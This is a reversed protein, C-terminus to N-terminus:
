KFAEALENAWAEIKDWNRFDGEEFKALKMRIYEMPYLESYWFEGSLIGISVPEAIGTKKMVPEVYLDVAKARREPTDNEDKLYTCTIFLAVPKDALAFRFRKLFRMTGDLWKFEYIPSGAVVGDYQSIDKVNRALKLDVQYGKECLVDAIRDVITSTAGHETDYTILIKKGTINEAGCTKEIVDEPKERYAYAPATCVLMGAMLVGTLLTLMFVGRNRKKNKM